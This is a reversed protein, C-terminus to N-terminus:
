RKETKPPLRKRTKKRYVAIIEHRGLVGLLRHSDERSVVPIRAEAEDINDLLRDLYQDPYAVFPHRAAIDGATLMKDVSAAGLQRELDTQTVLGTFFGNKDVVPFGHHGTKQFVRVLGDIKMTAPVTPFDKTMAEKVTVSRMIDTMEEQEIDVGRRLLKLTYISERKLTRSVLTSIVVATM